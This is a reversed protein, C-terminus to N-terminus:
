HPAMAWGVVLRSFLDLLFAGYLWSEATWLGTIDTVWKANPAEAGRFTTAPRICRSSANQWRRMRETGSVAGESNAPMM